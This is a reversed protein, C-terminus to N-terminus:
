EMADAARHRRVFEPLGAYVATGYLPIPFYEPQQSKSNRRHQVNSCKSGCRSRIYPVSISEKWGCLKKRKARGQQEFDWMKWGAPLEDAYRSPEPYLEGSEWAQKRWNSSPHGALELVSGM